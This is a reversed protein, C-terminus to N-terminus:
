RRGKRAKGKAKPAKSTAVVVVDPVQLRDRLHSEYETKSLRCDVFKAFQDPDLTLQKRISNLTGAPIDGQHVKPYTVRTVRKGGVTAWRNRESGARPKEGPVKADIANTVERYKV